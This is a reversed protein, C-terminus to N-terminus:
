RGWLAIGLSALVSIASVITSMVSVNFQRSQSYRSSSKQAKNPEVYVVDNQKLYFYPSTLTEASTLDFRHHVTKGDVERILLVNKRNGYITLDEAMGIADLVSFRESTVNIRGPKKVEGLVSVNFNSIRVTVLPDKVYAQLRGRLMDSLESCTLGQVQLRGLVPFVIEGRDSVQYTQMVPTTNVMTEGATQYSTLPMNFVAVAEPDVGSVNIQLQDDPAIVPMYDVVRLSDPSDKGLDQFYAVTDVSTRCSMFSLLLLCASFLKAKGTWNRKTCKM